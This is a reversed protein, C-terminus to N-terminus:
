TFQGKINGSKKKVKPCTLLNSYFQWIYFKMSTQESTISNNCAVAPHISMTFSVSAHQLTMIYMVTFSCHQQQFLNIALFTLPIKRLKSPYCHLHCVVNCFQFLHPPSCNLFLAKEQCM